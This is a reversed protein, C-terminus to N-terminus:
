LPRAWANAAASARLMHGSSSFVTDDTLPAPAYCCRVSLGAAQIPTPDSMKWLCGATILGKSSPHWVWDQLSWLDESDNWTYITSQPEIRASAVLSFDGMRLVALSLVEGGEPEEWLCVLM